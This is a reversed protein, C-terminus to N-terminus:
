IWIDAERRKWRRRKLDIKCLTTENKCRVRPEKVKTTNTVRRKKRRQKVLKERNKGVEEMQRKNRIKACAEAHARNFHFMIQIALRFFGM